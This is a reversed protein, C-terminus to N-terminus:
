LWVVVAPGRCPCPQAPAPHLFTGPAGARREPGWSVVSMSPLLLIPLFQM